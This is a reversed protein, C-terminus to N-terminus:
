RDLLPIKSSKLENTLQSINKIASYDLFYLININKLVM